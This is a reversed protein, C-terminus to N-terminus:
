PQASPSLPNRQLISPAVKCGVFLLRRPMRQRVFYPLQEIAFMLMLDDPTSSKEVGLLTPENEVGKGLKFGRQTSALASRGGCFLFRLGSRSASQAARSALNSM